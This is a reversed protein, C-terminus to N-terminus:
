RTVPGEALFRVQTRSDVFRQEAMLSSFPHMVPAAPNSGAVAPKTSRREEVSSRGVIHHFCLLSWGGWRRSTM